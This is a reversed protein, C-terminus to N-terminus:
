LCSTEENDECKIVNWINDDNDDKELICTKAFNDAMQWDVCLSEPVWKGAGVWTM